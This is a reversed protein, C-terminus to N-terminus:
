APKKKFFRKIFFTFITTGIIACIGLPWLNVPLAAILFIGAIAASGVVATMMGSIAGIIAGTGGFDPFLQTFLLGMAIGM